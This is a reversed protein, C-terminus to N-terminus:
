TLNTILSQLQRFEIDFIGYTSNWHVVTNPTINALGVRHRMGKRIITNIKYMEPQSLVLDLMLYEIKPFLVQNILYRHQKDTIKKWSIKNYFATIHRLILQRQHKKGPEIEHWTGLVRIPTGNTIANVIENKVTIFTQPDATNIVLLASKQPNVRINTMSFFSDTTDIINQLHSRNGAIWTSDDMYAVVSTNTKLIQTRKWPDTLTRTRTTFGKM